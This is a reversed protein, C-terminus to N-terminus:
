AFVEYRREFPHPSFWGVPLGLAFAAAQRDACVELRPQVTPVLAEVEAGALGMEAPDSVSATVFVSRVTEHPGKHEILTVRRPHRGPRLLAPIAEARPHQRAPVHMAWSVSGYHEYRYVRPLEAETGSTLEGWAVPEAGPVPWRCHPDFAARAIRALDAPGAPGLAVLGAAGVDADDLAQVTLVAADSVSRVRARVAAPDVTLTLRLPHQEGNPLVDVTIAAARIERHACTTELLAWWCAAYAEAVAPERLASPCPALLVSASMLGTPRHWVVGCRERGPAGVDLLETGTLPVPLKAAHPWRRLVAGPVAGNRRIRSGPGPLALLVHHWLPAGEHRVRALAVTALSVLALVLGVAPGALVTVIGIGGRGLVTARVWLDPPDPTPEVPPLAPYAFPRDADRQDVWHDLGAHGRM